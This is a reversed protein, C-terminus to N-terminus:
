QSTSDKLRKREREEAQRDWEDLRRRTAEASERAISRLWVSLMYALTFGVAIAAAAYLMERMIGGEFTLRGKACRPNRRVRDSM